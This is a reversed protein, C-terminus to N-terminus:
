ALGAEALAEDREQYLVLRAVKSGRFTWVWTAQATVEIGDRGRFHTTFPTVVTEGAARFEEPEYRASEWDGLFEAVVEPMRERRHVGRLPSITRTLDYEFGPALHEFARDWEGANLAAVVEAVTGARDPALMRALEGPQALAPLHGSDIVEVEVGLRERALGRMFELPLLRDRSGAIVRTPVDPWRELPFPDQFPRDSQKWEGRSFAEDIVPKPLDHMFLMIPDFPAGPDRGERLDMERQAELQGSARWWESGTEGKAFIMPAVLVIERVDARECLLPAVYAGMSQAAVTLEERDGIALLAAEAYEFYGAEDDAAPFDVAVVDHGRDRLEPEVLHWYWAQGGAGPLLIFNAM